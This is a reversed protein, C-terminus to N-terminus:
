DYTLVIQATEDPNNDILAYAEAARGFPIRHTILQGPRRRRIMEWAVALRRAKTWRGRWEPALHSVQTGILRIHARHFRGGLDLEVRKRGYWSGIVVRGYDGTLAIAM